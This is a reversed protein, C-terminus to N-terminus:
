TLAYNAAPAAGASGPRSCRWNKGIVCPGRRKRRTNTSPRPRGHAQGAAAGVRWEGGAVRGTSPEGRTGPEWPSRSRRRCGPALTGALASVITARTLVENALRKAEGVATRAEIAGDYVPTLQSRFATEIEGWQVVHVWPHWSASAASGALVDRSLKPLDALMLHDLGDTLPLSGGVRLQLEQGIPGTIYRMFAFASQPVKSDKTLVYWNFHATQGTKAKRPFPYINWKFQDAVRINTGSLSSIWTITMGLKGSEFRALDPDAEVEATTAAVRHVTRLSALWQVTELTPREDPLV